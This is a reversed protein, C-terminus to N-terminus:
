SGSGGTCRSRITVTTGHSRATVTTDALARMLALGRGRDGSSMPQRWVGYDQISITVAAGDVETCVDFFPLSPQQAHEVANSAAECAALVLDEIEEISLGAQCLFARMWWRMAAVSSLAADLRWASRLGTSTSEWPPTGGVSGFNAAPQNRVQRGSVDFRTSYQDLV